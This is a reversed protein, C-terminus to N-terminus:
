GAQNQATARHLVRGFCEQQLARGSSAAVPLARRRRHVVDVHSVLYGGEAADSYLFVHLVCQAASYQWVEAPPESRRLTPEGLLGSLGGRNM